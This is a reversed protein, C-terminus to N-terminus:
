GNLKWGCWPLEVGCGRLAARREGLRRRDLQQFWAGVQAGLDAGGEREHARPSRRAPPGSRRVQRGARRTSSSRWRSSPPPASFASPDRWVVVRTTAAAPRARADGRKVADRLDHAPHALVLRRVAPHLEIRARRGARGRAREGSAQLDLPGADPADFAEMFAWDLRCADLALPDDSWPARTSVFAPLNPASASFTGRARRIARRPLRRAIEASRRAASWGPSRRFTTESTRSTVFGSSSATRDRAARRRRATARGARSSSARRADTRASVRRRPRRSRTPSSASCADPHRPIRDGMRARRRPRSPRAGRRARRRPKTRWCAGLQPHGRGVRGAYRGARLAVIARRYLEWVEGRVHDSHTDLLHTGKDTHGAVHMQVVRDAPIADVYRNADFGHNYASVFVNNVDLLIGCDAREALEGLFEHEAM